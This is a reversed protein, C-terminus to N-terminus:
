MATTGNVPLDKLDGAAPAVPKVQGDKKILANALQACMKGSTEEATDKGVAFASTVSLSLALATLPLMKMLKM